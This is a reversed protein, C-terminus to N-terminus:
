LERPQTAAPRHGRLSQWGDLAARALAPGHLEAVVHLLMGTILGQLLGIGFLPLAHWIPGGAFFGAVTAVGITTLLLGAARASLHKSVIWWLALALPLRHLIVGLAMGWASDSNLGHDSHDALPAFLAIGDIAAHLALGAFALLILTQKAKGTLRHLWRHIATPVAFGLAVAVTVIPGAANWAEPLLFVLAIVVVLVAVIGDCLQVAMPSRSIRRALLPAILIPLLGAILILTTEMANKEEFARLHYGIKIIM